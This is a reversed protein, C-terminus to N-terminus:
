QVILQFESSGGNLPDKNDLTYCQYEIVAVYEGPDLEQNITIEKLGEGPKLYESEYLITGDSLKLVIVFYCNNDAPNGMSVTQEKTNAKMLMSVYGPILIQEEEGASVEEEIDVDWPVVNASTNTKEKENHTAFYVIGTAAIAAAVIAIVIIIILSKKKM